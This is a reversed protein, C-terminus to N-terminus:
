NPSYFEIQPQPSESVPSLQPTINHTDPIKGNGDKGDKSKRSNRPRNLDSETKGGYKRLVYEKVHKVYACISRGDRKPKIEGTELLRYATRLSRLRLCRKIDTAYFIEDDPIHLLNTLRLPELPDREFWENAM